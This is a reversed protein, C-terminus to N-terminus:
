EERMKPERNAFRALEIRARCCAVGATEAGPVLGAFRLLLSVRGADM